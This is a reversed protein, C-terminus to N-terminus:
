NKGAAELRIIKKASEENEAVAKKLAKNTSELKMQTTVLEHKIDYLEKERSQIDENLTEVQKKMKFYDDALNIEILLKQLDNSLHSYGEQKELDELKGNIYSAVKQIYEESEYGSLTYVKGGIIVKADTKPSAM